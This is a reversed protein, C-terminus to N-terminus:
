SGGLKVTRYDQVERYGLRQYLANSTPNALDTFLVAENGADQARRSIAMTVGGAYGRGRLTPPTYVPGVRVMGGVSPTAGAMSVPVGDVEWLVMGGHEMRDDVLRASAAAPEDAEDAFAAFWDLLVARDAPGALRAAGEPMPQPPTLDTLRYLRHRATVEAARGPAAAVWTDSFATVVDSAGDVATVEPLEAVLAEAAHPPMGSLLAPHPPTRLFVGQVREGAPQYWGFRPAGTGFIDVGSRRLTATVSLLVTNRVPDALLFSWAADEFM